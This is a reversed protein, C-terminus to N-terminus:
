GGSGGFARRGLCMPRLRNSLRTTNTLMQNTTRVRMGTPHRRPLHCRHPRSSKSASAARSALPLNGSRRCPFRKAPTGFARKASVAVATKNARRRLQAGITSSWGGVSKLFVAIRKPAQGEALRRRKLRAVGVLHFDLFRGM